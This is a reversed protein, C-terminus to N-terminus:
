QRAELEFGVAITRGAPGGPTGGTVQLVLTQGIYAGADAIAIVGMDFGRGPVRRGGAPWTPATALRSSGARLTLGSVRFERDVRNRYSFVVFAHDGIWRLEHVLLRGRVTSRKAIQRRPDGAILVDARVANAMALLARQTIIAEQRAILREHEQRAKESMAKIPAIREAVAREVRANFPADADRSVFVVPSHATTEDDVAQVLLHVRMPGLISVTLSASTAGHNAKVIVITPADISDIADDASESKFWTIEFGDSSWVKLATIRAPFILPTVAGRLVNFQFPRDYDPVEFTKAELAYATGPFGLMLLFFVIPSLSRM